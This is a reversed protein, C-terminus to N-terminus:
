RKSVNPSTNGALRGSPLIVTSTIPTIPATATLATLSPSTKAIPTFFRITRLQGHEALYKWYLKHERDGANKRIIEYVWGKGERRLQILRKSSHLHFLGFLHSFARIAYRSSYYGAVSTWIPSAETLSASILFSHVARLWMEVAATAFITLDSPKAAVTEATVARLPGEASESVGQAEPYASGASKSNLSSFMVTIQTSLESTMKGM